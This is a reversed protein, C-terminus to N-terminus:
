KKDIYSMHSHQPWQTATIIGTIAVAVMSNPVASYDTGLFCFSQPFTLSQM